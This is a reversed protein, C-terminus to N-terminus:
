KICTIFLKSLLIVECSTSIKILQNVGSALFSQLERLPDFTSVDYLDGLLSQIASGIQNQPDIRLKDINEEVFHISLKLLDALQQITKFALFALPILIIIGPGKTNIVRGLRFIVGREYERLVKLASALFFIIIVVPVVFTGLLSLLYDM